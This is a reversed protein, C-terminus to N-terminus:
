LENNGNFDTKNKVIKYTPFRNYILYYIIVVSVIFVLLVFAQISDVNKKKWDRFNHIAMKIKMYFPQDIKVSANASVKTPENGESGPKEVANPKPSSTTIKQGEPQAKRKPDFGKKVIVAKKATKKTGSGAGTEKKNNKNKNNTAM